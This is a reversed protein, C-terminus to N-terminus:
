HLPQRVAAPEDIGVSDFVAWDVQFVEGGELRATHNTGVLQYRGTQHIVALKDLDQSVTLQRVRQSDACVAERFGRALPDLCRATSDLLDWM